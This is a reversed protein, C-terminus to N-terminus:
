IKERSTRTSAMSLRILIITLTTRESWRKDRISIMEWNWFWSHFNPDIIILWYVWWFMIHCCWILLLKSSLRTYFRCSMIQGSSSFFRCKRIAAPVIQSMRLTGITHILPHTGNLGSMEILPCESFAPWLLNTITFYSPFLGLTCKSTMWFNIFSTRTWIVQGIQLIQFYTLPRTWITTSFQFIKTLLFLTQNISVWSSYSLLSASSLFPRSYSLAPSSPSYFAKKSLSCRFTHRGEKSLSPKVKSM